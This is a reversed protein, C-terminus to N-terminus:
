SPPASPPRAAAAPGNQTSNATVKQLDKGHLEFYKHSEKDYKYPVIGLDGSFRNKTVELYRYYKGKQVIIVNDAEQTAKATGFVSNISLAQGDDEKRPHIILTIHVNKETAFKRFLSIASDLQDFREYGKFHGVQMMFQLNDLVIHEVDYVYVAYDMADLVAEVETGGHFRMFYLPVQSFKDAWLDFEALHKELNKQAFQNLMKKALRVNNLEFSGWLTNVGQSCLDMSIQSIITTKGIGTPGTLISLEGKRHGKLLKNLTPFSRMQRGAVQDPNALERFVESRIENFNLIQKHPLRRAAKLITGLDHGQRLADNADKPGTTAGLKTSVLYCRERGLKLAYKQAAQQGVVDDDLWLYVKDFRELMTIVEVPLCNAGCPLSIAPLGTAQYVAMADFEGETIIVSTKGTQSPAASESVGAVPTDPKLEPLTGDISATVEPAILNWGFVGWGGGIPELRQLWKGGLARYKYRVLTETGATALSLPGFWPFTICLFDKWQKDNDDFFRAVTGGVLYKQVVEAKLGRERVLYDMLEPYTSLNNVFSQQKAPEPLKIEKLETENYKTKIQKVERRTKTLSSRKSPSSNSAEEPPIQVPEARLTGDADVFDTPLPDPQRVWEETAQEKPVAAEGKWDTVQTLDGYKQQFDFWSGRSGCRFCL